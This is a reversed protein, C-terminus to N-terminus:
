MGAATAHTNRRANHGGKKFKAKSGVGYIDDMMHRHLAAYDQRGYHPCHAGNLRCEGEGYRQCHGIMTSDILWYASMKEVTGNVRHEIVPCPKFKIRAMKSM